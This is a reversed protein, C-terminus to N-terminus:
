LTGDYTPGRSSFAAVYDLGSAGPARAGHSQSAGVEINSYLIFVSSLHSDFIFM